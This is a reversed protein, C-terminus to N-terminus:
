SFESSPMHRSISVSKMGLSVLTLATAVCCFNDYCAAACRSPPVCSFPELRCLAAIIPRLPAACGKASANGSSHLSRSLSAPQRPILDSLTNLLSEDTRRSSTPTPLIRRLCHLPVFRCHRPLSLLQADVRHICRKLEAVVDGRHEAPASGRKASRLCTGGSRIRRSVSVRGESAKNPKSCVNFLADDVVLCRDRDSTEQACASEMYGHPRIELRAPSVRRPTAGRLASGAGRGKGRQARDARGQCRFRRTQLMM